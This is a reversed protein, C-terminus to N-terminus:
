IEELGETFFRVKMNLQEAKAIEAAMGSSIFTGFVWVEQCKSLFVMDMYLALERETDERMFQPLLIHPAIPVVGSDVAFRSYKRAKVTNGEIDGSFQSCIYILPLEKHM